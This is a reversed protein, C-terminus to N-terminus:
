FVLVELSNQVQLLPLLITWLVLTSGTQNNHKLQLTRTASNISRLSYLFVVPLITDTTYFRKSFLLLTSMIHLIQNPTDDSFYSQTLYMFHEIGKLITCERITTYDEKLLTGNGITTYYEILDPFEDFELYAM